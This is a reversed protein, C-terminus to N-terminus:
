LNRWELNRKGDGLASEVAICPRRAFSVFLVEHFLIFCCCFFSMFCRGLPSHLFADRGGAAQGRTM